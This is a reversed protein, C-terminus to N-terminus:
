KGIKNINYTLDIKNLNPLRLFIESLDLHSPFQNFKITFIYDKCAEMLSYLSAENFNEENEIYNEDNEDSYEFLNKDQLLNKDCYNNKVDNFNIFNELIEQILKEFYCQKWLLNHENLLCQHYSYKNLCCLKFYNENYLYKALIKYNIKNIPLKKIIKLLLPPPIIEKIPNKNFNQIIIDICKDVLKVHAPNVPKTSQVDNSSSDKTNRFISTTNSNFPTRIASFNDERSKLTCPYYISLQDKLSSEQTNRGISLGSRTSSSLRSM